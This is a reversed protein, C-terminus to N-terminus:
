DIKFEDADPYGSTKYWCGSPCKERFRIPVPLEAMMQTTGEWAIWAQHSSHVGENVPAQSTPAELDGTHGYNTGKAVWGKKDDSWPKSHAAMYVYSYGYIGSQIWDLDPAMFTVNSCGKMGDWLWPVRLQMTYAIDGQSSSHSIAGANMTSGIVTFLSLAAVLMCTFRKRVLM